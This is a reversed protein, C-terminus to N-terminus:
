FVFQNFDNIEPLPDGNLAAVNEPERAIEIIRKANTPTLRGERLWQYVAENTRNVAVRLKPIDLDGRTNLYAPLFKCLTRNLPGSKWNTHSTM